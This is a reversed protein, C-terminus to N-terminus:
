KKTDPNADKKPPPVYAPKKRPGIDIIKIQEQLKDKADQIQKRSIVEGDLQYISTQAADGDDGTLSVNNLNFKDEISKLQKELEETKKLSKEIIADINAKM